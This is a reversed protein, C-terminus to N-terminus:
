SRRNKNRLWVFTLYSGSVVILLLIALTSVVLINAGTRNMGSCDMLTTAGDTIYNGDECPFHAAFWDKVQGFLLVELLFLATGGFFIYTAVKRPVM